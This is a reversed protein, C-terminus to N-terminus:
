ILLTWDAYGVQLCQHLFAPMIFRLFKIGFLSLNRPLNLNLPTLRKLLTTLDLVCITGKLICPIFSLIHTHINNVNETVTIPNNNSNNNFKNFYLQHVTGFPDILVTGFRIIWYPKLVSMYKQNRQAFDTVRNTYTRPRSCVYALTSCHM